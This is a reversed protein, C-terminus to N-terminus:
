RAAEGRRGMVLELSQILDSIMFPKEHYPCKLGQLFRHTEYNMADATIVIARGALDPHSAEVLELLRQGGIAGPLQIDLVLADFTEGARLRELADEGTGAGTVEYGQMTLASGLMKQLDDEDDVVLVRRPPPPAETEAADPLAQGEPEAPPGAQAPLTLVLRAGPLPGQGDCLATLDGGLERAVSRALSLGLGVGGQSRRTTFFPEFVQEALEPPIGPGDDCVELRALGDGSDLVCVVRTGGCQLANDLLGLIVRALQEPACEVRPAGAPLRWEVRAAQAATLMPLVSEHLLASLDATVRDTPLTQGFATLDEVIERCRMGNRLIGSVMERAQEGSVGRSLMEAFGTIVSLPTRIQHAVSLVVQSAVSSRQQALLRNELQKELRREATTELLGCGAWRVQGGPAYLPMIVMRFWRVAGASGVRVEKSWPQGQAFVQRCACAGGHGGQRHFHCCYPTDGRFGPLALLGCMGNAHLVRGSADFLQVPIPIIDAFRHKLYALVDGEEMRGSETKELRLSTGERLGRADFTPQALMEWEPDQRATRIRGTFREARMLDSRRRFVRRLRDGTAEDCFETFDRGCVEGAGLLQAMRPNALVVMGATDLLAFPDGIAEILLRERRDRAALEQEEFRAVRQHLTYFARSFVDNNLRYLSLDDGAGHDLGRLAEFQFERLFSIRENFLVATQLNRTMRGLAVVTEDSTAPGCGLLAVQEQILSQAMIRLKERTGPDREALLPALIEDQRAELLRALSQAVSREM